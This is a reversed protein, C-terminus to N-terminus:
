DGVIIIIIIIIVIFDGCVHKSREAETRGTEQNRGPPEIERKASCSEVSVLNFTGNHYLKEIYSIVQSTM